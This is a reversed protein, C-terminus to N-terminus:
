LQKIMYISNQNQQKMKEFGFRKYFGIAKRNKNSVELKICRMGSQRALNECASLLNSGIHMGQCAPKVALLTIYAMKTELDNAYMAAYGLTERNRAAIFIANKDIKEFLEKYNGRDKIPEMFAEDCQEIADEKHQSIHLIEVYYEHQM